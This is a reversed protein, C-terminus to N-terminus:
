NTSLFVNAFGGSTNTVVVRLKAIPLHRVVATTPGAGDFYSLGTLEGIVQVRYSAFGATNGVTFTTFGGITDIVISKTQGPALVDTVYRGGGVAGRSDEALLAEASKALTTLAAQDNEPAKGILKRADALFTAADKRLSKTEAPKGEITLETVEVTALAKSAAILLEPMSQARGHEALRYAGAILAATKQVAASKKEEEATLKVPEATKGEVPKAETTKAETKAPAPKTEQAFSPTSSSLSCAMAGVLLWGCAVWSRVKM